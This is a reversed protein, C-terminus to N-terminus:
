ARVDTRGFRAVGLGVAAVSWAALVLGGTAQGLLDPDPSYTLALGAAVPLWRGASPLGLVAV